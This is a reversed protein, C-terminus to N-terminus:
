YTDINLGAVMVVFNESNETSASFRFGSPIILNSFTIVEGYSVYQGSKGQPNVPIERILSYSNTDHIFFRIMGPTVNQLAKISVQRIITGLNAGTIIDVITGTGDLNPNATALNGFGMNPSYSIAM